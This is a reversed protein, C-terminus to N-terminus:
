HALGQVAVLLAVGGLVVLCGFYVGRFFPIDSRRIGMWLGAGVIAVWSILLTYRGIQGSVVNGSTNRSMSLLVLPVAVGLAVSIAFGTAAPLIRKVTPSAM